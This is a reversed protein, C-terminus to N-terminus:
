KKIKLVQIFPGEYTNNNGTIKINNYTQSYDIGEAFSIGVCKREFDDYDYFELSDLIANRFAEISRLYFNRKFDADASPQKNM